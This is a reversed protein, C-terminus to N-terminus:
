KRDRKVEELLEDIRDRAEQGEDYQFRLEPAFRLGLRGTVAKKLRGSAKELAKQADDCREKETGEMLRYFIRALRLDPTMTVSAIILGALRPDGLDRGVLRALEQRLLGAVRAPRNERTAGAAGKSDDRKM